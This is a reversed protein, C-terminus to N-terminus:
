QQSTYLEIKWAGGLLERAIFAGVPPGAVPVAAGAGIAGRSDICLSCGSMM